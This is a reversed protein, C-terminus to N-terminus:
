PLFHSKCQGNGYVFSRRGAGPLPSPLSSGDGRGHSGPRLSEATRYKRNYAGEYSEGLYVVKYFMELEELLERQERQISKIELVSGVEDYAFDNEKAETRFILSGDEDFELVLIGGVKHTYLVCLIQLEKKISEPLAKFGPNLYYKEEYASAACLVVNKTEEM